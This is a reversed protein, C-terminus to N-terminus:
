SISAFLPLLCKLKKKADDTAGGRSLLLFSKEWGELMSKIVKGEKSYRIKHM